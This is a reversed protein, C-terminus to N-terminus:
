LEVLIFSGDIQLTGDIQLQNDDAGLVCQMHQGSLVTWTEGSPITLEVVKIPLKYQRLEPM